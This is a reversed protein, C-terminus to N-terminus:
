RATVTSVDLSTPPTCRAGPTRCASPRSSRRAPPRLTVDAERAGPAAVALTPGPGSSDHPVVANTRQIGTWRRRQRHSDAPIEQLVIREMVKAIMRQRPCSWRPQPYWSKIEDRLGWHTILRLDSAFLRRGADDVLNGMRINYRSIYDEARVRARTVEQSVAGPVRSVFREALRVQAWHDRTWKGGAGIKEALSAVPFNLLAVFAVRTKFLDDQVHAAPALEAFLSDLPVNPGVEVQLPRNVDRDIEHLHGDISELLSEFRRFTTELAAPDAIFQATCFESFAKEDGDEARWFSAVAEVGRRIRAENVSGRRSVLAQIVANCRSPSVGARLDSSPRGQEALAPLSSGLTTLVVAVVAIVRKLTVTM